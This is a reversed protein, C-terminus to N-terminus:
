VSAGPQNLVLDLLAMRVYVGNQAQRFYAARPDPDVDTSIEDVRPLPHLLIAGPQMSKMLRADIIYRGKAAEYDDPSEFREKQIRTQYVVDVEGLAAELSPEDRFSVKAQDLAARIDDGMPATPPAVFILEADSTERLLLALSRATRGYKLDGVLAVKLGDVRGLEHRMTYLDLLAQTPHEGPGDGANLVPVSSVAAARAAAGQDYHRIVIADAYSEVIRITDEVTEGKIASSFEKANETSIVGGGLRLMASEFSLRTRTSPEYFITALIQGKLRDAGRPLARM